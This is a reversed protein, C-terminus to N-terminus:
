VKIGTESLKVNYTAAFLPSASAARATILNKSQTEQELKLPNMISKVLEAYKRRKAQKKL